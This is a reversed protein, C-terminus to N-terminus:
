LPFPQRLSGFFLGTYIILFVWCIGAVVFMKGLMFLIALIFFILATVGFVQSIDRM